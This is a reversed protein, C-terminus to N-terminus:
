IKCVCVLVFCLCVFVFCVCFCFCFLCLFLFLCVFVVSLGCVGEPPAPGTPGQLIGEELQLLRPLPLRSQWRILGFLNRRVLDDDRHQTHTNQTINYTRSNTKAANAKKLFFPKEVQVLSEPPIRLGSPAGLMQMTENFTLMNQIAEESGSAAETDVEMDSAAPAFHTYHLSCSSFPSGFFPPPLLM